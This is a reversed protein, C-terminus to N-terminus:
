QELEKNVFDNVDGNLSELHELIRQKEAQHFINSSHSIQNINNAINRILLRLQDLRKKLREPVFYSKTMYTTAMALILQNPTLKEDGAIKEFRKFDTLPIYLEVRKHTTARESNKIKQYKKRDM